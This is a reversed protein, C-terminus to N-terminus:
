EKVKKGSMANLQQKWVNKNEKLLNSIDIGKDGPPIATVSLDPAYEQTNSIPKTGAFPDFGNMGIADLMKKRNESLNPKAVPQQQIKEFKHVIPEQEKQVTESLVKAFGEEILVEKLCEKILPKMLAKLENKKM